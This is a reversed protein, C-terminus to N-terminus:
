RFNCEEFNETQDFSELADAYRYAIMALELDGDEEGMTGAERFVEATGEYIQARLRDCGISFNYQIATQGFYEGLPQPRETNVSPSPKSIEQPISEQSKKIGSVALTLVVVLGAIVISPILIQSLYGSGSSTRNSTSHNRNKEKRWAIVEDTVFNDKLNPKLCFGCVDLGYQLRNGWELKKLADCSCFEDKWSV